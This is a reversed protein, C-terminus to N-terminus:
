LNKNTSKSIELSKPGCNFLLDIISLHSIFDIKEFMQPYIPHSFEQFVVKIKAEEFKKVELHHPTGSETWGPGTLYTDAGLKQCIKVLRETARGTVELLSSKEIRTRIGLIDMIGKILYNDLDAILKWQKKFVEEFFDSYEKFYPTRSYNIQIAKWHNNQWNINNEIEVENTKKLHERGKVPVTLWQWGQSTKIKNRNTFRDKNYQADDLIVFVDSKGIRDFFGLWPLYEPQHITVIM